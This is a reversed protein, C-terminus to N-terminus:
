ANSDGINMGPQVPLSCNPNQNWQKLFNWMACTLDQGISPTRQGLLMERMCAADRLESIKGVAERYVHRPLAGLVTKGDPVIQLLAADRMCTDIAYSHWYNRMETPCAALTLTPKTSM